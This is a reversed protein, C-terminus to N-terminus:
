LMNGERHVSIDTYQTYTRSDVNYENGRLFGDFESGIVEESMVEACRAPSPQIITQKVLSIKEDLSQKCILSYSCHWFM